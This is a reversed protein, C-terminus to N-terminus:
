LHFGLGGSVNHEAGKIQGPEAGRLGRGTATGGRDSGHVQHKGILTQTCQEQWM